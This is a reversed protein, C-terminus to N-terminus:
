RDDHWRSLADGCQRLRPADDVADASLFSVVVGFGFLSLSNGRKGLARADDPVGCPRLRRSDSRWSAAALLLADGSVPFSDPRRDAGM